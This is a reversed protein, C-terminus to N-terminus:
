VSNQAASLRKRGASSEGETERDRKRRKKPEEENERLKRAKVVFEYLLTVRIANHHLAVSSPIMDDSFNSARPCYFGGVVTETMFDFSYRGGIEAAVQEARAAEAPEWDLLLRFM